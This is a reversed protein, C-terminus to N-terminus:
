LLREKSIKDDKQENKERNGHYIALGNMKIKDNGPVVVLINRLIGIDLPEGPRIDFSGEGVKECRNVGRDLYKRIDHVMSKPFHVGESIM